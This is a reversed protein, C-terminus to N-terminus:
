DENTLKKSREIIIKQLKQVSKGSVKMKRNNKRRKERRIGKINDVEIEELM